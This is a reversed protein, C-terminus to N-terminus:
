VDYRVCAEDFDYECYCSGYQSVANEYDYVSAMVVCPIIGFRTSCKDFGVFVHNNYARCAYNKAHRINDFTGVGNRVGYRNQMPVLKTYNMNEDLDIAQCIAYKEKM